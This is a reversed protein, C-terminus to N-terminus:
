SRLSFQSILTRETGSFGVFRGCFWCQKEEQSPCRGASVGLDRSCTTPLAQDLGPYSRELRPSELRSLRLVKASHGPRPPSRLPGEFPCIAASSRVTCSCLEGVGLATDRCHAADIQLM